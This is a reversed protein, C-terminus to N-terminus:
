QRWMLRPREQDRRFRELFEQRLARIRADGPERLPQVQALEDPLGTQNVQRGSGNEHKFTIVGLCLVIVALSVAIVTGRIGTRGVAM